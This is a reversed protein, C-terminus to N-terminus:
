TGLYAGDEQRLWHSVPRATMVKKLPLSPNEFCCLLFEWHKKLGQAVMTNRRSYKGPPSPDTFRASQNELLACLPM